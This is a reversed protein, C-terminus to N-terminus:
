EDELAAFSYPPWPGQVAIRAGPHRDSLRGVAERFETEEDVDVLYAGNLIMTGEYGALRPDQPRLRRSAVARGSLEGHLGDALAAAAETATERQAVEAKRRLLYDTGTAAGAASIEDRDGVEVPPAFAKVSWEMRGEIRALTRELSDHWQELRSRVSDDDLCITALRLPATPGRLAIAHVVGDHTRAVEELWALDELNRRLGEDGFEDLPVESVVAALGGHEVVRLPFGRLGTHGALDADSVGRSIAYLYTGGDTMTMTMTMTTTM